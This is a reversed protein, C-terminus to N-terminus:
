ATQMKGVKKRIMKIVGATLQAKTPKVDTFHKLYKRFDEASQNVERPTQGAGNEGPGSPSWLKGSSGNEKKIQEIKKGDRITSLLAIQDNSIGLVLVEGAVEVLAITKRPAIMGTGLVKILKGNGGLLGNKLVFKKFLYFVFFVLALVVALMSFMTIGSSVLDPSATDPSHRWDSLQFTKEDGAMRLTKVAPSAKELGQNSPREVADNASYPSSVDATEVSLGSAAEAAHGGAEERIKKLLKELLDSETKEVRAVLFRGQRSLHFKNRLGRGDSGLMFRVRVTHPDFQVAYIESVRSDGTAFRRKAPKIFSGGLDVQVSKKYFVPEKYSGVPKRFELRFVVAGEEQRTVINKLLNLHTLEVAEAAGAILFVLFFLGSKFIRQSYM